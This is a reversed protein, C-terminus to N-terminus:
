EKVILQLEELESLYDNIDKLAEDYGIKYKNSLKNAIDEVSNKGNCLDYIRAGIENVEFVIKTDTIMFKGQFKVLQSKYSKKLM